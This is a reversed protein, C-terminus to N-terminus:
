VKSSLVFTVSISLTDIWFQYCKNKYETYGLFENRDVDVERSDVCDIGALGVERFRILKDSRSDFAFDGTLRFSTTM